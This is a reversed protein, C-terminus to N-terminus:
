RVIKLPGAYPREIKNRSKTVREFSGCGAEELNALLHALSKFEFPEEIKNIMYVPENLLKGNPELSTGREIYNPHEPFDVDIYRNIGGEERKDVYLYGVVIDEDSYIHFRSYLYIAEKM